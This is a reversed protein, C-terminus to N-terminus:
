VPIRGIMAASTSSMAISHSMARSVCPTVSTGGTYTNQRTLTVTTSDRSSTAGSVSFANFASGTGSIVQDLTVDGQRYVTFSAGTGLVVNSTLSGAAVTNANYTNCAFAFASDAM